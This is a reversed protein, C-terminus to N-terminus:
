SQLLLASSKCGAREIFYEKGGLVRVDFGWIGVKGEVEKVDVVEGKNAWENGRFTGWAQVERVAEAGESAEKPKLGEHVDVRLPAFVHTHCHVDLLYSGSTVNRFDFTNDV